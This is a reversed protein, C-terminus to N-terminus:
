SSCILTVTPTINAEDGSRKFPPLPTYFLKTCMTKAQMLINVYNREYVYQMLLIVYHWLNLMWGEKPTCIYM